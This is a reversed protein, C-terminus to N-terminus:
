LAAQRGDDGPQGAVLEAERALLWELTDQLVVVVHDPDLGIHDSEYMTLEKPEAAAQFLAHTSAAPVVRDQTGGQVLIPRPAIKHVHYIPDLPGFLASAGLKVLGMWASGVEERLLESDVLKPTNGGGYCLVVGAIREDFAAANSGTIAGFSAGMLYIRDDAIDPRTEFYDILRRTELVNLAARERLALGQKWGPTGGPLRREGRTYQDFSVIAFGAQVFPAAIEEVFGKEQGIGHLFILTPWPGRDDLPVCLITPVERVLRDDTDVRGRFVFEIRRYDATPEDSRIFTELPAFPEYGDFVRADWRAKAIWLGAVAVVLLALLVTAIRKLVNLM